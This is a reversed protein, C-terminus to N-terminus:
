ESFEECCLIDGIAPKGDVTLLSHSLKCNLRLEQVCLEPMMSSEIDFHQDVDSRLWDPGNRWLHSASLEM